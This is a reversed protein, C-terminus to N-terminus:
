TRASCYSTTHEPGRGPGEKTDTKGMMSKFLLDPGKTQERGRENVGIGSLHGVQITLSSIM